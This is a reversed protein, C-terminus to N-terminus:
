DLELSMIIKPDVTKYTVGDKKYYVPQNMTMKRNKQFHSKGALGGQQGIEGFKGESIRREMTSTSAITAEM